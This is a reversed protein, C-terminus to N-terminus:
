TDDDRGGATRWGIHSLAEIISKSVSISDISAVFSHLSSSLGVYSVSSAIRHSNCSRSGKSLPFIFVQIRRCLVLCLLPIRCLLLNQQSHDLSALICKPSRYVHVLLSSLSYPPNCKICWSSM